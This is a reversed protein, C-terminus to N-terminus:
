PMESMEPHALLLSVGVSTVGSPRPRMGASRTRVHSTAPRGVRSRSRGGARKRGDGEAEAQGRMSRLRPSLLAVRRRVRSRRSDGVVNGPPGLRKGLHSHVAHVPVGGGTDWLALGRLTRLPVSGLHTFDVRPISGVALEANGAGVAVPHSGEELRASGCPRMVALQTLVKGGLACRVTQRFTRVLARRSSVQKGREPQYPSSAGGSPGGSRM